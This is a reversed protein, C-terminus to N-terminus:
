SGQGPNRFMATKPGRAIFFRHAEATHVSDSSLVKHKDAVGGPGTSSTLTLTRGIHSPLESELDRAHIPGSLMWM